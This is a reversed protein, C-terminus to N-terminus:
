EWKQTNSQYWDTLYNRNLRYFLVACCFVHVSSCLITVAQNAFCYLIVCSDHQFGSFTYILLNDGHNRQFTTSNAEIWQWIKEKVRLWVVVEKFSWIQGASCPLWDTHHLRSAPPRQNSNWALGVEIRSDTHGPRWSSSGDCYIHFLKLKKKFAM